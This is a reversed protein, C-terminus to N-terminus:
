LAAGSAHWCRRAPQIPPRASSSELTHSTRAAVEGGAGVVVDSRLPVVTRRDEEVALVPGGEEVDEPPDLAAVAPAHVRPAQHSVVVVEDELRRSRVQGIPHSVQVAGVCPSEVLPVTAAVVDETAAEPRPQDFGLLLVLLGDGVDDVVRSV